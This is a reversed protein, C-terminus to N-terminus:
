PIGMTDVDKLVRVEAKSMVVCFKVLSPKVFLSAISPSSIALAREECSCSNLKRGRNVWDDQAALASKGDGKPAFDKVEPLLVPLDKEPVAVAGHEDCHIIPIPAGWYRQRSILWDRMKYTVKSTGRGEQELWAVIEERAESTAMGDFQESNMLIGEGHYCEETNDAPKEIVEVVPLEFKEAFAFDREDHAPVAM